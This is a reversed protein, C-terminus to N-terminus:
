VGAQCSGIVPTLAIAPAAVTQEVPGVRAKALVVLNTMGEATAIGASVTFRLEKADTAASPKFTFAGPLDPTTGTVQVAIHDGPRAGGCGTWGLRATRESGCADSATEFSAVRRLSAHPVGAM